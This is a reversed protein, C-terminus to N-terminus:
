GVYWGVLWGVSRGVLWGVSLGVLWGVIWGVLWGVTEGVFWGVGGGVISMSAIPLKKNSSILLGANMAVTFEATWDCTGSLMCSLPTLPSSSSLM